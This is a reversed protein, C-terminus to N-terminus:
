SRLMLCYSNKFNSYLYKIAGLYTGTDRHRQTETDRHRQIETDRHSHRQTVSVCGCRGHRQPQTETDGFCLRLPRRRQAVLPAAPDLSGLIIKGSWKNPHYVIRTSEQLERSAIKIIDFVNRCTKIVGLCRPFMWSLERYRDQKRM